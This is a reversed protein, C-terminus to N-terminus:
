YPSSSFSSRPLDRAGAALPMVLGPFMEFLRVVPRTPFELELRPHARLQLFALLNQVPSLAMAVLGDVVRGDLLHQRLEWGHQLNLMCRQHDHVVAVSCVPKVSPPPQCRLEAWVASLCVSLRQPSDQVWLAHRDALQSLGALVPVLVGSRVVCGGHGRQIVVQRHGSLTTSGRSRWALYPVKQHNTRCRPRPEQLKVFEISGHFHVHNTGQGSSFSVSPLLAFFLLPFSFSSLCLPVWTTVLSTRLLICIRRCIHGCPM